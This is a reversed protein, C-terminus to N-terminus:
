DDLNIRHGNEDFFVPESPPYVEVLPSDEGHHSLDIARNICYISDCTYTMDNDGCEDVISIESACTREGCFGCVEGAQACKGRVSVGISASFDNIFTTKM